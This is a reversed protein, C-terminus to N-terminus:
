SYRRLTDLARVLYNRMSTANLVIQADMYLVILTLNKETAKDLILYAGIQCHKNYQM